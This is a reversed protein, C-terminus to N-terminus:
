AYALRICRSRVTELLQEPFGTLLLILSDAPPEELTKLFANSAETQLRDAEEIVAVKLQGGSATQLRHELARIQDVVIRRSLSSPRAVVVWEGEAEELSAAELGVIERLIGLTLSARGDRDSGTVLYAHGLRQNEQSRSLYELATQEDLAM